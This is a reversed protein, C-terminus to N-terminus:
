GPAHEIWREPAGQDLYRLIIRAAEDDGGLPLTEPPAPARQVAELAAGLEGRYLDRAPLHQHRFYRHVAAELIPYERFDTRETYVMPKGNVACESLVGYGPKTVVIDSSAMVDSYPFLEREVAHLNAGPWRLPPVTLFEYDVLAQVRRLADQDWALSAFSLLVWPRDVRLGFREALEARRNRGPRAVLPLDRTHRFSSMPAAFPLRLLLDCALYGERFQEVVAEWGPDREVFEEYIWDWAFNGVALSPVGARRAAILPLAPIDCVVGGVRERELFRLEQEVLPATREVLASAARLSAPVDVRISDLQVMGADFRGARYRVDGRPLRSALFDGPLDTVVHITLGPRARLLAALIDCSRAGHGFGHATIYYALSTAAVVPRRRARHRRSM